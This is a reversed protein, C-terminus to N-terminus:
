LNRKFYDEILMYLHKRDKGSVNHEHGPYVFYDVIKGEDVCKKLYSLSNQWVVTADMSGHIILLRANLNNVGYLLSAEAYGGPNEAPTDMYREGYMVEYYKWDVVPGGAVAAKFYDPYRQLMTITMFGGYSWGHLGIRDSDVYPLSLLYTIGRMQDEAEAEGLKRHIQQEFDLGRNNTGRNDLTFIIYGKTAMYNLFMGAGGLWSNTVLQSHPGGYVYVIAPYKKSPNFDPPTIMRCYLETSDAGPISFIKTEGTKYAELPNKDELLIRSIKGKNDSLYVASAMGTSTFIDIIFECKDSMLASHTGATTSIQEMKGGAINVTYIQQEIPSQKTSAFFVYQDKLDTGMFDTIEWQGSTLQKILVGDTNYLYLHNYGDRRSQWIFETPKSHLFYMGHLPEVYKENHEEFLTKIFDGNLADYQNLKLHNQERNVVAIFVHKEDPSWSINTLFQEKPEGTKLFIVAQTAPNFIGVKVEHSRGGAMPYRTNSLQAPTEKIDVLPYESVMTQDMRYFALLRGRPSWFTGKEIGWENRHVSQGNVIGQDIDGTVAMEKNNYKVYLNNDRTYAVYTLNPAPDLNEEKATFSAVLQIKKDTLNFLYYANNMFASFMNANHWKVAPFRKVPELSSIVLVENFTKLTFVTDSAKKAANERILADNLIYTYTDTEPIWQINNLNKPYMSRDTFMADLTLTKNQNYAQHSLVILCVLIFLRKM